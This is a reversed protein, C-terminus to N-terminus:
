KFRELLPLFEDGYGTTQCVHLAQPYGRKRYWGHRAYWAAYGGWRSLFWDQQLSIGSYLCPHLAIAGATFLM